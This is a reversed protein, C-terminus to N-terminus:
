SSCCRCCRCCSPCNLIAGFSPKAARPARLRKPLIARWGDAVPGAQAVVVQTDGPDAAPIDRYLLLVFLFALTCLAEQFRAGPFDVFKWAWYTRDCCGATPSMVERDMLSLLRPAEFAITTAYYSVTKPPSDSGEIAPGGSAPTMFQM